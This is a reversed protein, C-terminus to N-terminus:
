LLTAWSCCFRRFWLVSVWGMRKHWRSRWVFKLVAERIIDWFM